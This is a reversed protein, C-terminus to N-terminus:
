PGIMIYNGGPVCLVFVCVCLCVRALVYCVM